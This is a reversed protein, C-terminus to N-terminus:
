PQADAPQSLSARIAALGAMAFRHLHDVLVEPQM